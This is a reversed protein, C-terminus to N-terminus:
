MEADFGMGCPWLVPEEEEDSLHLLRTGTGDSCAARTDTVIPSQFVIASRMHKEHLQKLVSQSLVEASEALRWRKWEPAAKGRAILAM